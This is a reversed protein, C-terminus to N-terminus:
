VPIDEGSVMLTDYGKQQYNIFQCVMTKVKLLIAAHSVRQQNNVPQSAPRSQPNNQNYHSQPLAYGANGARPHRLFEEDDIEEDFYNNSTKRSSSGNTLYNDM